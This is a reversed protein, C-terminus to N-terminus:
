VHHHGRVKPTKSIHENEKNCENKLASTKESRRIGFTTVTDQKHMELVEAANGVIGEFYEGSQGLGNAWLPVSDDGM